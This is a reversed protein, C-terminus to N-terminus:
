ADVTGLARRVGDVDLGAVAARLAPDPNDLLALLVREVDLRGPGRRGRGPGREGREPRGEFRGEIREEVREVALSRMTDRLVDKLSDRFPRGFPGGGGRPGRRGRGHGHRHPGAYPGRGRGRGRGRRDPRGGWGEALDGGFTSRVAERVRDLDIGLARLAERDEEYAQAPGSDPSEGAPEESAPAEDLAPHDRHFTVVAERCGEFSLGHALLLDAVSSRRDSLLGLLLHEPGLTPHGLDRAEESAQMLAIRTTNDLRSFM